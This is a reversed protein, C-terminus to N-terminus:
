ATRGVLITSGRLGQYERYPKRPAPEKRKRPDAVQAAELWGAAIAEAELSLPDSDEAGLRELLSAFATEKARARELESQVDKGSRELKHFREFIAEVNEQASRKPDLAIRRPSADSSYWDE